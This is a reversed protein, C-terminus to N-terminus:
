KRKETQQQQNTITTVHEPYRSFIECIQETRHKIDVTLSSIHQCDNSRQMYDPILSEDHMESLVEHMEMVDAELLASLAMLNEKNIHIM